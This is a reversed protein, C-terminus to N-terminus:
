KFTWKIGNYTMTINSDKCLTLFLGAIRNKM